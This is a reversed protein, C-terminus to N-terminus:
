RREVRPIVAFVPELYLNLQVGGDISSAISGRIMSLTPSHFEFALGYGTRLNDLTLNEYSDWVRGTDVFVSAYLHRALDWQYELTGVGAIRDRFRELDYGRLLVGGGLAPLETFPTQESTATIAEGHFRASLVRPGEGLRFYHQLDTGYRWYDEGETVWDPGAWFSVLSGDSTMSPLDWRSGAKRTDWRVELEGYYSQYDDFGILSTPAYVMDIPPGVDAVDRRRDTVSGAVQIHFDSAVRTDVRGSGRAVRQKYKTEVAFDQPEMPMPDEYRTAYSLTFKRGVLGVGAFARIHDVDTVAWDMRAGLRIGVGTEYSASPLISFNESETYFLRRARDELNYREVVWTGFRFPALVVDVAFRPVVLVARGVKRATSDRPEVDDLRGSEAGPPPLAEQASAVSGFLLLTSVVVKM